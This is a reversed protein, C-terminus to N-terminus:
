GLHRHRHRHRHRHYLAWMCSYFTCANKRCGWFAKHLPSLDLRIDSDSPTGVSPTRFWSSDTHDDSMTHQIRYRGAEAISSSSAISSPGSRCLELDIRIHFLEVREELEVVLCQELALSM